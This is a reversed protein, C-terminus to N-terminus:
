AWVTADWCVSANVRRSKFILKILCLPPVTNLRSRVSNSCLCPLHAPAPSEVSCGWLSDGFYPSSRAPTDNGEPVLDDIRIELFLILTRGRVQGRKREGAAM